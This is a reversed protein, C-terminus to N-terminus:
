DTLTFAAYLGLLTLSQALMILGAESRRVLVAALASAPLAFLAVGACAILFGELDIRKGEMSTLCALVMIFSCAFALLFRIFLTRGPIDTKPLTTESTRYPNQEM